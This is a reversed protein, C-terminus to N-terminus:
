PESICGYRLANLMFGSMFKEITFFHDFVLTPIKELNMARCLRIRHAGDITALGSATSNRHKEWVGNSDQRWEQMCIPPIIPTGTRVLEILNLMRNDDDGGYFLPQHESIQDIQYYEVRTKENIFEIPFDYLKTLDFNEMCWVIKLGKSIDRHANSKLYSINTEM